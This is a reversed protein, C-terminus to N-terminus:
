RERLGENKYQIFPDLFYQIIQKKRTKIEATVIMGPVLYIKTGNIDFYNKEVEFVGRYGKNEIAESGIEVLKANLTGYKRYDFTEIKIEAEQGEHVFGIDKNAIWAEIQLAENEPVIIMLTQAQSVVGGVTHVDMQQVTGTIPSSVLSLKYKEQAKNLEEEIQQLQQRDNVLKSLIERNHESITNQLTEQAQELSHIAQSVETKHVALDHYSEIEQKKYNQYKFNSVAGAQLLEFIKQEQDTDIEFQATAKKVVMRSIELADQAKKITQQAVGLKSQYAAKNSYYLQLQNQIDQPDAKINSDPYFLHDDKEAILRQIELLYFDREKTLRTLDAKTITSDFEILTDGVNVKSGEQVLISKVVNKDEAQIKKSYGSPIIKGPAIAIEDIEGIIAWILAISVLSIITWATARGLASPPTEIVEQAAPLFELESKKFYSALPKKSKQQIPKLITM